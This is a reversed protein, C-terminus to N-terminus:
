SHLTTILKLFCIARMRCTDGHKCSSVGSQREDTNSTDKRGEHWAPKLVVKRPSRPSEYIKDHLVEESNMVVVKEICAAPLTNHFIIANSRTQYFTLGKKQAVRFNIWYVTNQHIRWNQPKHTYIRSSPSVATFFVTLRGRKVHKGGPILGSLIISHMDHSSGVRTRRRDM